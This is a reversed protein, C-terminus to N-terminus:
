KWPTRSSQSWKPIRSQASSTIVPKPRIPWQNADSLYSMRGSMRVQALPREEAYAAIPATRVVSRTISGNRVPSEINVCPIVNPPCGTMAAIASLFMSIM